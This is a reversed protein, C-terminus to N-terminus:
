IAKAKMREDTKKNRERAGSAADRRTCVDLMVTGHEREGHKEVIHELTRPLNKRWRSGTPTESKM